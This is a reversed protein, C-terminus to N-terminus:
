KNVRLELIKRLIRTKGRISYYAEMNPAKELEDRAEELYALLLDVLPKSERMSISNKAYEELAQISIQPEM